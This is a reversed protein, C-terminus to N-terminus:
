AKEGESEQAYRIYTLAIAQWFAAYNGFHREVWEDQGAHAADESDGPRAIHHRTCCPALAENTRYRDNGVRVHHLETMGSVGCVLCPQRKLWARWDRREDVAQILADMVNEGTEASHVLARRLSDPAAVFATVAVEVQEQRTLNDAASVDAVVVALADATERNLRISTTEAKEAPAARIQEPTEGALHRKGREALEGFRLHEDDLGHALAHGAELYAYWRKDDEGQTLWLIFQRRTSRPYLLDWDKRLRHVEGALAKRQATLGEHTLTLADRRQELTLTPRPAPHTLTM